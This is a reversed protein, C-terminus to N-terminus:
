WEVDRVYPAPLHKARELPVTAEYAQGEPYHLPRSGASIGARQIDAVKYKQRYAVHSRIPTPAAM